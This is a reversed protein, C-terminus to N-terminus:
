CRYRLRVSERDMQRRGLREVQNQLEGLQLWIKPGHLLDSANKVEIGAQRSQSWNDGGRKTLQLLPIREREESLSPLLAFAATGM